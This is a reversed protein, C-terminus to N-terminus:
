LELELWLSEIPRSRKGDQLYEAYTKTAVMLDFEDEIREFLARKFAEDLSIANLKAYSEAQQREEKTLRISFNM